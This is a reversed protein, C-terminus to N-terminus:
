RAIPEVAGRPVWGTTGNAVRIRTWADRREIV